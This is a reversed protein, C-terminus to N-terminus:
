TPGFATVYLSVAQGRSSVGLKRYIRKLHSKVTDESLFLARSIEQNSKGLVLARLVDHERSSLTGGSGELLERRSLTSRDARMLRCVTADLSAADVDLPLCVVHAQAQMVGSQIRFAPPSLLVLARGRGVLPRLGSCLDELDEEVPAIVLLQAADRFVQEVATRLERMAAVVRVRSGRLMSRIGALLLDSKSVAIARYPDPRAIVDTRSSEVAQM